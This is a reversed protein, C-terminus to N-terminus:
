SGCRTGTFLTSYRKVNWNVSWDKKEAVVSSSAVCAHSLLIFDHRLLGQLWATLFFFESLAAVPNCSDFDLEVPIVYVM